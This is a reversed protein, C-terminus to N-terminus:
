KNASIPPVRGALVDIVRMKSRIKNTYEPDGVCYKCDKCIPLHDLVWLYEEENKCPHLYLVRKQWDRYDLVSELPGPYVAFGAQKGVGYPRKNPRMGFLNKQQKAIRSKFNDTELLSQAVVVKSFQIGLSDYIWIMRDISNKQEYTSDKIVRSSEVAQFVQTWNSRELVRLVLLAAVLLFLSRLM